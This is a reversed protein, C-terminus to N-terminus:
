SEPTARSPCIINLELAIKLSLSFLIKKGLASYIYCVHYAINTVTKGVRTVLCIKCLSETFLLFPQSQQTNSTDVTMLFMLDM